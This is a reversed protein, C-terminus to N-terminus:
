EVAFEVTGSGIDARILRVRVRDGERASGTARAVIAPDLIQVLVKGRQAADVVVGDFREGVRDALVAAEVADTCAREVAGARHDGARMLEALQPLAARVWEPAPEGAAIAACLALGFRDVLRRLPATVHAYPAAVAAHTRREPLDGAFGTYGAGRFLSTAEHIIALHRPDDRDLTRLFDGYALDPPWPVGLAAVQRRFRDMTMQDPAPMTRLVGVKAEIMLRAAAVGTLLSLQANWEESAVSPRFRLEYHGPSSEIVEQEPMPLSAGGRQHELGIRLEAIEKLLLLKEDRSGADIARQVGDYDLRAVSRVLAPYLATGVHEGAADLDLDWVYAPRVQDPLLSAADESLVQPHLPIRQDPCYITVARRRTEADLASDPAVFLPVAAIAYRVRYGTLSGDPGLRRELCMAQDLDMSGPPDLTIFPVATEDRLAPLAAEAAAQAQAQVDAPFGEPVELERRIAAFRDTM